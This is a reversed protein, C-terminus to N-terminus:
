NDIDSDEKEIKKGFPLKPKPMSIQPIKNTLRAVKDKKVSELSAKYAAFEQKLYQFEGDVDQLQIGDGYFIYNKDAEVYLAEINKVVTRFSDGLMGFIEDGKRIEMERGDSKTVLVPIDELYLNYMAGSPRVCKYKKSRLAKLKIVDGLTTGVGSIIDQAVLEVFKNSKYESVKSNNEGIIAAYPQMGAFVYRTGKINGFLGYEEQEYYTPRYIYEVPVVSFTKITETKIIRKGIDVYEAM